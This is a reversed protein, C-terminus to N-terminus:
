CLTKLSQNTQLFGYYTWIAQGLVSAASNLSLKYLGEASKSIIKGLWKSVYSGFKEKTKPKPDNKIAKELESVDEANLKLQDILYKKLSEFDNKTIRQLNSQEVYSNTVDGLIGQFNTINIQQNSLATTKEIENFILNEGLVGQQELKLAWNLLINRVSEIIGHVSTSPVILVPKSHLDMSNMLKTEINKAFPVHLVGSDGKLDIKELETIKQGIMRTSMFEAKKSDECVIPMWMGNYPNFAKVDGQVRRYEPIEDGKSYGNLENNIWNDFDVLNLKRSIVLAKRLLSVVSKQSDIAENQLELVLSSM